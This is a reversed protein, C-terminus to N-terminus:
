VERIRKNMRKNMRKKGDLTEVYYHIVIMYVM